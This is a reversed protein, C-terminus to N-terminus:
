KPLKAKIAKRGQVFKAAPLHEITECDGYKLLLERTGQPCVALMQELEDAQERTIYSTGALSADDDEGTQLGLARCFAYRTAYTSASGVQQAANQGRILEPLAIDMVLPVSHGQIHALQGEVHCMGDSVTCVQWTCSLGLETLLPRITRWIRDMKAYKKGNADDLKEIIPARSQFSSIAQFYAKRAEDAEWERRVALLERLYQPDAGSAIAHQILSVASQSNEEVPVLSTSM